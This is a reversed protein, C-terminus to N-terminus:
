EVPLMIRLRQAENASFGFKEYFPIKDPMACLEVFIQTGSIGNSKIFDLLENILERGIGQKQYDPHVVVDKIYYCLGMDGIMRAMAVIKEGDFVSVRFVSNEMALKVQEVAPAGDWVSEWLYIFEDATLENHKIELNNM